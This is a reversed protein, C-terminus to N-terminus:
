ALLLIYLQTHCVCHRPCLSACHQTSALRVRCIKLQEYVGCRESTLIFRRNRPSYQAFREGVHPLRFGVFEQDRSVQVLCYPLTCAAAVTLSENPVLEWRDDLREAQM